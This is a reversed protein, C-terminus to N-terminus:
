NYDGRLISYIKKNKYKGKMKLQERLIGEFKMGAKQMVRESGINDENCRAEIRNAGLENFGYKILERAAEPVLGKNWYLKSIVYGIETRDNVEDFSIFAVRGILMKSEKEIIGWHFAQRRQYKEDIVKLYMSSDEVTQFLNWSTHQITEPDSLVSFYDEADLVELRRLILRNTELIPNKEFLSTTNL